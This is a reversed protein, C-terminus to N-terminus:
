ESNENLDSPLEVISSPENSHNTQNNKCATIEKITEKIAKIRAKLIDIENKVKEAEVAICKYEKVFSNEAMASDSPKCDLEVDKQEGDSEDSDCRFSIELKKEGVSFDQSCKIKPVTVANELLGEDYVFPDPLLPKNVDSCNNKSEDFCNSKEHSLETTEAPTTASEVFQFSEAFQKKVM